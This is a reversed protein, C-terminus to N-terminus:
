LLTKRQRRQMELGLLFNTGLPIGVNASSRDVETQVETQKYIRLFFNLATGIRKNTSKIHIENGTRFYHITVLGTNHM